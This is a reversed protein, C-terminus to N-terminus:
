HGLIKCHAPWTEAPKLSVGVALLRGDRETISLGAGDFLEALLLGIQAAPLPDLGKIACWDGYDRHIATLESGGEETPHLREVAFQAAHKAKSIIRKSVTLEAAGAGLPQKLVIPEPAAEEDLENQTRDARRRNPQHAGFVLLGCAL